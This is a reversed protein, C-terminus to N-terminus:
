KLKSWLKRRSDLEGLRFTTWDAKLKVPVASFMEDRTSTRSELAIMLWTLSFMFRAPFYAEPSTIVRFGSAVMVTLLRFINPIRFACTRAPEIVILQDLLM